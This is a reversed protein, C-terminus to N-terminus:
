VRALRLLRQARKMPILARPPFFHVVFILSFSAGFPGTMRVIGAERGPGPKPKRMAKFGSQRKSPSSEERLRRRWTHRGAEFTKSSKQDHYHRDAGFFVHTQRARRFKASVREICQEAVGFSPSLRPGESPLPGNLAVAAVYDSGEDVRHRSMETRLASKPSRFWSKRQIKSRRPSDASRRFWFM